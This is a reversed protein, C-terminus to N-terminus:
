FAKILEILSSESHQAKYEKAFVKRFQKLSTMGKQVNNITSAIHESLPKILKNGQKQADARLNFIIDSTLLACVKGNDARYGMLSIKHFKLWAKNINATQAFDIAKQVISLDVDMSFKRFHNVIKRDTLCDVMKDELYLEQTGEAVANEMGKDFIFNFIPTLFLLENNSFNKM